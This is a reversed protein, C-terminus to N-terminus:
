GKSFIHRDTPLIFNGIYPFYCINWVVLWHKKMHLRCNKPDSWPAVNILFFQKSVHSPLLPAAITTGGRGAMGCPDLKLPLIVVCCMGDQLALMIDGYM